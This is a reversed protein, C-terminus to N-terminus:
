GLVLAAFDGVRDTLGAHFDKSSGASFEFTDHYKSNSRDSAEKAKQELKTYCRELERVKDELLRRMGERFDDAVRDLDESELKSVFNRIPDSSEAASGGVIQLCCALLKALPLTTCWTELVSPLRILRIFEDM